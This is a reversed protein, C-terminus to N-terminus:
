VGNHDRPRHRYSKMVPKVSNKRMKMMKSATEQGCRARMASRHFRWVPVHGPLLDFGADVGVHNYLCANRNQFPLPRDTMTINKKPISKQNVQASQGEKQIVNGYMPDSRRSSEM